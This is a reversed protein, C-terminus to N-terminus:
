KEPAGRWVAQGNCFNSSNKLNSGVSIYNYFDNLFLCKVFFDDLHFLFM